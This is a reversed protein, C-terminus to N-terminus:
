LPDFRAPRSRQVRNLHSRRVVRKVHQDISPEEILIQATAIPGLLSRMCGGLEEETALLNPEGENIKRLEFVGRVDCPFAKM